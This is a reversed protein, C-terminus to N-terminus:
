RRVLNEAYMTFEDDIAGPIDGVVKAPFRFDHDYTIKLEYGYGFEQETRRFLEDITPWNAYPADTIDEGTAVVVARAVVGDRVEIRVRNMLEPPCFCAKRYEYDYSRVQLGIWRDRNHHLVELQSRTLFGFAGCGSLLLSSVLLLARM